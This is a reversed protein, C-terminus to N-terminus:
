TVISVSPISCSYNDKTRMLNLFIRLKSLSSLMEPSLLLLALRYIQRSTRGHINSFPSDIALYSEIKKDVLM